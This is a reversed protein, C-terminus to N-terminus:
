EDSEQQLYNLRWCWRGHLSARCCAPLGDQAISDIWAGCAPELCVQFIRNWVNCWIVVDVTRHRTNRFYAATAETIYARGSIGVGNPSRHFWSRYPWELPEVRHQSRKHEIPFMFTALVGRTSLSVQFVSSRMSSRHILKLGNEVRHIPTTALLIACGQHLLAYSWSCCEVEFSWTWDM